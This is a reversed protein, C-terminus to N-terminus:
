EVATVRVVAENDLPPIVIQNSIINGVDNDGAVPTEDTLRYENAGATGGVSFYVTLSVTGDTDSGSRTITFDESDSGGQSNEYISGGRSSISVTPTPEAIQTTATLTHGQATVVSAVVNYESGSSSGKIYVHSFNFPGGTVGEYINQARGDGWAISWSQPTDGGPSTFTANVEGNGNHDSGSISVTPSVYTVDVSQYAVCENDYSQGLTETYLADTEIHYSGVTSYVHTAWFTATGPTWGVVSSISGDGWNIVWGDPGNIGAAQAPDSFSGSLTYTDNQGINSGGELSVSGGAAPYVQVGGHYTDGDSSVATIPEGVSGTPSFTDPLSESDTPGSVDHVQGDGWYVTYSAAPDAPQGTYLDITYPTDEEAEGTGIITVGPDYATEVATVTASFTGDATNVTGTITYTGPTQYVHPFGSYTPNSGYMDPATGDGWNITYGQAPLTDTFGVGLYQTTGM